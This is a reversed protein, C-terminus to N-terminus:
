FRHWLTVAPDWDSAPETQTGRARRAVCQLGEWVVKIPSPAVFSSPWPPRQVSSTGVTGPECLGWRVACSVTTGAVHPSSHPVWTMDGEARQAQIPSGLRLSLLVRWCEGPVLLFSSSKCATSAESQGGSSQFSAEESVRTGAVGVGRSHTARGLIFSM